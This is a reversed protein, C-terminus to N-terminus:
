QQCVVLATAASVLAYFFICCDCWNANRKFGPAEIVTSSWGSDISFIADPDTPSSSTQDSDQSADHVNQPSQLGHPLKQLDKRAPEMDIRQQRCVTQASRYANSNTAPVGPFTPQLWAPGLGPQKRIYPSIKPWTAFRPRLSM